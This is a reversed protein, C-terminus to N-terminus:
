VFQDRSRDRPSEIWQTLQVVCERSKYNRTSLRLICENKPQHEDSLARSVRHECALKSSRAQVAGGGGAGGAGSSGAQGGGCEMSLSELCETYQLTFKLTGNLLSHASFMLVDGVVPRSRQVMYCSCARIRWTNLQTFIIRVKSTSTAWGVTWARRICWQIPADFVRLDALDSKVDYLMEYPTRGDLAKTPTRNRVYTATSFAETKGKKAM